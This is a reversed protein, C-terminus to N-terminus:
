PPEDSVADQVSLEETWVGRSRLELAARKAQRIQGLVIKAEFIDYTLMAGHQVLSEELAHLEDLGLHTPLVFIPPCTKFIELPGASSDNVGGAEEPPAPPSSTSIRDQFM